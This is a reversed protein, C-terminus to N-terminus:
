YGLKSYTKRVKQQFKPGLTRPKTLTININLYFINLNLINSGAVQVFFDFPSTLVTEHQEWTYCNCNPGSLLSFWDQSILPEDHISKLYFKWSTYSNVEVNSGSQVSCLSSLDEAHLFFSMINHDATQSFSPSARKVERPRVFRFNPWGQSERGYHFPM